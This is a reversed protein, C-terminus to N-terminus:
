VKTINKDCLKFKDVNNKLSKIDEEICEKLNLLRQRKECDICFTLKENVEQLKKELWKDCKNKLYEM